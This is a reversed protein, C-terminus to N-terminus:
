VGVARRCEAVAWKAAESPKTRAFKMFVDTGGITKRLDVANPWAKGSSEGSMRLGDGVNVQFKGYNNQMLLSRVGVDKFDGEVKECKRVFIKLDDAIINDTVRAAQINGLEMAWGRKSGDIDRTGLFVNQTIEGSVGGNHVPNGNVYGYSLHIPNNLFLNGRVIGGSRAQLGHSANNYFVNDEFDGPSNNARIYAGHDYVTSPYKGPRWGNTDFVTRRVAWDACEIFHLGSAKDPGANNDILSDEVIVNRTPKGTDGVVMLGFGGYGRIRGRVFRINGSCHYFLLGNDNIGDGCLDIRDFMVATREKIEISTRLVPLPKSADGYGTFTTGNRPLNFKSLRLDSGRPLLISGGANIARKLEDNTAVKTGPPVEPDTVVIPPDSPTEAKPLVTLEIDNGSTVVILRVGPSEYKVTFTKSNKVVDRNPAQWTVRHDSKLTIAEGALVNKKVVAM